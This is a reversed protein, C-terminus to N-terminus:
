FPLALYLKSNRNECNEPLTTLIQRVDKNAVTKKSSAQLFHTGAVRSPSDKRDMKVKGKKRRLGSYKVYM